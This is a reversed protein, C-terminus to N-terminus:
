QSGPAPGASYFLLEEDTLEDPTEVEEAVQYVNPTPVRILEDPTPKYINSIAREKVSKRHPRVVMEINDIKISDVGHEQCLRM